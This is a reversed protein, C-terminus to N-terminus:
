KPNGEYVIYGTKGAHVTRHQIRILKGAKKLKEKEKEAEAKTTFAAVYHFVIGPAKDPERFTKAGPEHIWAPTVRTM